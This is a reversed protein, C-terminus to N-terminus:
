KNFLEELRRKLTADIAWSDDIIVRVGAILEPQVRTTVRDAKRVFKEFHAFSEQPLKRASQIEVYSGGEDKAIKREVAEIIKSASRADGTKHLLAVFQRMVAEKDKPESKLVELLARAYM